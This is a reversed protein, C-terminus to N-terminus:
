RVVQEMVAIPAQVGTWKEFALAGQHVLMGIGGIARAGDHTAKQLLRTQRPNYVLDYVTQHTTFPVTEPWPMSDVNPTMGLSTTNVIIQQSEAIEEIDDPLRFAAFEADVDADSGPPSFLAALAQANAETRNAISIREAGDALLAYVVARASGGAGLVLASAGAPHVGHAKLDAAFGAADTNDGLLRGDAEVIITNVAGIVRAADTLEDLFPMVAQKHPVTVNAGRMGLARVAKVADEVHHPQVPLPVYAWNMGLAAFAANHMAPSRSHGVPSGIIGVLTTKGDINHPQYQNTM